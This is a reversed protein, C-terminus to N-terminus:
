RFAPTARNCLAQSKTGGTTQSKFTHEEDEEEAQFEVFQSKAYPTPVWNFNPAIAIRRSYSRTLAVPLVPPPSGSKNDAPTVQVNKQSATVEPPFRFEPRPAHAQPFGSRSSCPM